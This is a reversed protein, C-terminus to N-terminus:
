LSKLEYDFHVTKIGTAGTSRYFKIAYDDPEDAEVMVAEAGLLKAYANNASILKKGIGKYQFEKKVALDFIYILPSQSYYQHMVYATLGGIIKEEQIAAFVFFNDSNLLTQLYSESPMKFNKMEFVAEFVRILEIFKDLDTGNLKKIESNM